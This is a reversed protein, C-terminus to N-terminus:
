PLWHATGDLEINGLEFNMDFTDLDSNLAIGQHNSARRLPKQVNTCKVTYHQRFGQICLIRARLLVVLVSTVNSYRLGLPSARRREVGGDVM